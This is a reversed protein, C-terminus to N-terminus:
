TKLVILLFILIILTVGLLVICKMKRNAKQYKSAKKLQELGQEVKVGANEISYDIRDVIEGQQSVMGALDKFITNLDQISEVIHKIEQERRRLYQTNEEMLLLDQKQWSPDPAILLGDDQDDPSEFFKGTRQERAEVKRLYNGQSSRLNGASDQLRSALNAVINSLVVRNHGRLSSVLRQLGQLQKNCEGFQRTLESTMKNIREEEQGDDEMGPRSLHSLHLSSLESMKQEARSIQYNLGEM